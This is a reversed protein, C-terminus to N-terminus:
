LMGSTIVPIIYTIDGADHGLDIHLQVAENDTIGALAGCM